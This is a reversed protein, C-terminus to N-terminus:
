GQPPIGFTSEFLADLAANSRAIAKKQKVGEDESYCGVLWRSHCNYIKGGFGLVGGFRFETWTGETANRIFSVKSSDYEGAPPVYAGAHDVLIQWIKEAVETTIIPERM